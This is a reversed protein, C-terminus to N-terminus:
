VVQTLLRELPAPRGFHHGQAHRIGISALATVHNADEVGEAVVGVGVEEAFGVIARALARAVPSSALSHTLSLDLKIWDPAVTLIQSLSAHGAGFDDIAVKGGAARLPALKLHFADDDIDQHETIEVVVRDADVGLTDRFGQTAVTAPSANISLSVGAPLHPLASVAAHAALLELPIGLGVHWADAFWRDPTHAPDGPFRALAEYAIVRGDDLAVIPQFVPTIGEADLLESVRRHCADYGESRQQAVDQRANRTCCLIEGIEGDDGIVVRTTTEVWVYDGSKHRLRYVLTVPAGALASRHAGGVKPTDDPHFLDYAWRGTLEDPAYGLLEHSAASVYRYTGDPAHASVMDGLHDAFQWGGHDSVFARSGRSPPPPSSATM